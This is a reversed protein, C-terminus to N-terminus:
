FAADKTSLLFVLRSALLSSGDSNRLGLMLVGFIAVLGEDPVLSVAVESARIEYPVKFANISYTFDLCTFRGVRFVVITIVESGISCGSGEVIRRLATRESM